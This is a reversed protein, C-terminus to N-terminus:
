KEILNFSKFIPGFQAEACNTMIGFAIKFLNM